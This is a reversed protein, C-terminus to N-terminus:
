VRPLEEIKMKKIKYQLTPRKIGLLDAAKSVNGESKILADKIVMKEFEIIKRNYNLEGMKSDIEKLDWDENVMYDPLNTCEIRDAGLSNLLIFNVVNKLERVNGKWPYKRFIRKVEISLDPEKIKMYKCERKLFIRTLYDIDAKRQRLPPVEIYIPGLRYFLDERLRKKKILVDTKENTTCIVKVDVKIDKKGGIRKVYGEQLVRLLKAQLFVPLSNLEDLLLTGGNAQEFLGRSEVAGTFSGVETGFFITELLTEPIAACNQSVFPKNRRYSWNHIAQAIIEKGTGTEGYILVNHDYVSMDKVRNILTILEREITLFDDFSYNTNSNLNKNEFPIKKEHLFNKELFYFLDGYSDQTKIYEIAGITEGDSVIPINSTVLYITKGKNNIQVKTKNNIAKNTNICRLLTSSNEDLDKHIDLVHKGIVENFKFNMIVEMVHNCYIIIGSKDIVRIGIDINELIHFPILSKDIITITIM